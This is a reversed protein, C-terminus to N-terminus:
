FLTIARITIISGLRHKRGSAPTSTHCHRVGMGKKGLSLTEKFNILNKFHQGRALVPQQHEVIYTLDPPYPLASSRGSRELGVTSLASPRADFSAGRSKENRGQSQGM